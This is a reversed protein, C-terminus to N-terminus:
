VILHAGGSNRASCHRCIRPWECSQEVAFPVQKAQTAQAEEETEKGLLRLSAPENTQDRDWEEGTTRTLTEVMTLIRQDDLATARAVDGELEYQSPRESRDDKDAKHEAAPPVDAQDRKGCYGLFTAESSSNVGSDRSDAATDGRSDDQYTAPKKGRVIEEREAGTRSGVM